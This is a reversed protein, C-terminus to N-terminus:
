QVAPIDTLHWLAGSDLDRLYLEGNEDTAAKIHNSGLEEPLTFDNTTKWTLGGDRSKFIMGDDGIAYVNGNYYVLSLTNM